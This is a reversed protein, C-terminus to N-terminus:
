KKGADLGYPRSQPVKRMVAVTSKESATFGCKFKRWFASFDSESFANPFSLLILVGALWTQARILRISIFSNLESTRVTGKIVINEKTLIEQTNCFGRCIARRNRYHDVIIM